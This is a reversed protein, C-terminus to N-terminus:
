QTTITVGVNLPQSLVFRGQILQGRRDAVPVLLIPDPNWENLFANFFGAPGYSTWGGGNRFQWTQGNDSSFYFEWSLTKGVSLKDALDINMVFRAESVDTPVAVQNGGPNPFVYSGAPRLSIPVVVLDGALSRLAPAGPVRFAKRIARDLQGSFQDILVSDPQLLRPQSVGVSSPDVIASPALPAVVSSSPSACGVALLAVFALYVRM